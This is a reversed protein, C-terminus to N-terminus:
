FTSYIHINPNIYYPIPDRALSIIIRSKKASALKMDEYSDSSQAANRTCSAEQHINLMGETRRSCHMHRWKCWSDLPIADGGGWKLFQMTRSELSVDKKMETGTAVVTPGSM